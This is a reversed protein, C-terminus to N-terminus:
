FQLADRYWFAAFVNPVTIQTIDEGTLEVAVANVARILGLAAKTEICVFEQNIGIGAPQGSSQHPTIGMEAIPGAARASVQGEVPAVISAPHRLGHHNVPSERFALPGPTQDLPFIGNNVFRM